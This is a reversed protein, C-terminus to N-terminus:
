VEGGEGEGKPLPPTELLLARLAMEFTERSVEENRIRVLKLDRTKLILTRERDYAAIQPDDHVGDDIEVVLGREACFFDVIFGDIVQQRRFKLGLM